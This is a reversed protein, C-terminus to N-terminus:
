DKADPSIQEQNSNNKRSKGRKPTGFCILSTLILFSGAVFLTLRKKPETSRTLWQPALQEDSTQKEFEQLAKKILLIDEAAAKPYHTNPDNRETGLQVTTIRDIINPDNEFQELLVDYDDCIGKLKDRTLISNKLLQCNKYHELLENSLIAAVIAASGITFFIAFFVSRM